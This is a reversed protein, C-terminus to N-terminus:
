FRRVTSGNGSTLRYEVPTDYPLEQRWEAGAYLRTAPLDQCNAGRADCQRGEYVEQATNSANHLTLQRGARRGVVEGAIIRPRHLVLVDYGVFVKLATTEATVPGAVPKITVRYIRDIAATGGIAAVRVMKRQDPELVMRQPSVLLGTVAPDPSARRQEDPRGPNLVEAPEAVVYMREKGANWVEIDDHTPRGPQLDVIVQSLVLEAHAPVATLWLAALALPAQRLSATFRPM